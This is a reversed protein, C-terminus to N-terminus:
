SPQILLAALAGALLFPGLRVYGGHRVRRAMRFVLLSVAAACWGLLTGSLLATWGAWGLALGLLGGLRFELGVLDFSASSVGNEVIDQVLTTYIRSVNCWECTIVAGFLPSM